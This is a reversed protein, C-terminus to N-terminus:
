VADLVHDVEVRGVSPMEAGVGGVRVIGVRSDTEAYAGHRPMWRLAVEGESAVVALHTPRVPYRAGHVCACIRM